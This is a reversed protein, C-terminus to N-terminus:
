CCSTDVLAFPMGDAGCFVVRKVTVMVFIVM